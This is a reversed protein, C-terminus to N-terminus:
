IHLIKKKIKYLIQFINYNLGLSDTALIIKGKFNVLNFQHGGYKYFEDSTNLINELYIEEEIVNVNLKSIKHLAVNGGYLRSCDQSPRYINGNYKFVSGANRGYDKGIYLPSMPHETYNGLLTQSFFVRQHFLRDSTFIYYYGDNWIISSDVFEGKLPVHCFECETLEENTFRYIRIEGAEGSEPMMYVNGNNEFVFPFSLHFNEELVLVPESWHILDDTYVMKIYGNSTRRKEEYFLFLKENRVFLFPDAKIVIQDYKFIGKEACFDKVTKGNLLNVLEDGISCEKLRINFNTRFHEKFTM